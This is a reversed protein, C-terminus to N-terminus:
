KIKKKNNNLSNYSRNPRDATMYTPPVDFSQQLLKECMPLPSSRLGAEM